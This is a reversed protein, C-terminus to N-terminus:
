DVSAELLEKLNALNTKVTRTQARQVLPDGLKGFLGALGSAAEIRYTFQTGNGAPTLTYTIEFPLKGEVSKTRSRTPPEFEVIETTWELKRGLVNTAGEWRTGLGVDGDTVQTLRTLQSEFAPLNDTITLFAWVDEPSRDITISEEVTPM